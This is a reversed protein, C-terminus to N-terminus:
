CRLIPILRKIARFSNLNFKRKSFMSLITFKDMQCYIKNLIYKVDLYYEFEDYNDEKELTNTLYFLKTKQKQGSLKKETAKIRRNYLQKREILEPFLLLHNHDETDKIKEFM